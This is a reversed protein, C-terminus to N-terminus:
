FTDDFLEGAEGPLWGALLVVLHEEPYCEYLIHVFWGRYVRQDNAQTLHTEDDDLVGGQRELHRIFALCEARELCREPESRLRAAFNLFPVAGDGSEYCVVRWPPTENM